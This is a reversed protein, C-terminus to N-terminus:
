AIRSGSSTIIYTLKYVFLGVFASLLPLLLKYRLLLVKQYAPRCCFTAQTFMPLTKRTWAMLDYLLILPIAGMM